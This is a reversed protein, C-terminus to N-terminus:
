SAGEDLTYGNLILNNANRGNDKSRSMTQKNVHCADYCLLRKKTQKKRSPTREMLGLFRHVHEASILTQALLDNPVLHKNHQNANKRKSEKILLCRRMINILVLFNLLSNFNTNNSENIM